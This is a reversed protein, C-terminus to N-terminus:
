QMKNEAKVGICKTQEVKQARKQAREKNSITNDYGRWFTEVSSWVMNDTLAQRTTM